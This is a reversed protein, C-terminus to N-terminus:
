VSTVSTAAEDPDRVMVTVPGVFQAIYELLLVIFILVGVMELVEEIALVVLYAFTPEGTATILYDGVADSAFVGLLYIVLGITFWRRWRSPLDIYFRGFLVALIGLGVLGIALMALVYGPGETISVVSRLVKTAQSHVGLIEELSLLAFGISLLTWQLPYPRARARTAVAIVAFMVSCAMLTITAYWTPISGEHNVDVWSAIKDVYDNETIVYESVVQGIFSVVSITVIIIALTQAIRRVSGSIRLPADHHAATEGM